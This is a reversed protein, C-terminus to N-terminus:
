GKRYISSFQFYGNICLGLTSANQRSANAFYGMAMLAVLGLSELLKEYFSYEKCPRYIEALVQLIVVGIAFSHLYGKLIVLRLEKESLSTMKRTRSDWQVSLGGLKSALKTLKLFLKYELAFM